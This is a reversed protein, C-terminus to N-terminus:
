VSPPLRRGIGAALQTLMLGGPGPMGGDAVAHSGSCLSSAYQGPELRYMDGASGSAFV